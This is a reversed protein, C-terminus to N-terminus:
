LKELIRAGIERSVERYDVRLNGLIQRAVMKRKLITQIAQPGFNQDQQTKIDLVRSAAIIGPWPRPAEGGRKNKSALVRVNGLDESDVVVIREPDYRRRVHESAKTKVQVGVARKEVTDVVVLDANARGSSHEFQAPAPVVTLNPHSKVWNVLVITADCEQMAGEMRSFVFQSAESQFAEDGRRRLYNERYQYYLLGDLALGNLTHRIPTVNGGKNWSGNIVPQWMGAMHYNLGLFNVENRYKWDNGNALMSMELDSFNAQEEYETLQSARESLGQTQGSLSDHLIHGYGYSYLQAAQIQQNATENYVQSPVLDRQYAELFEVSKMLM